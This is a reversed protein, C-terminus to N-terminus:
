DFDYVGEQPELHAWSFIGVSVSNMHAEKLLEIDKKLIEPYRLWQEPNYDAGHILRPFKPTLANM